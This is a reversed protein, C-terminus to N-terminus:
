LSFVGSPSQRLLAWLHAKAENSYGFAGSSVRGVPRGNQFIPEGGTPDANSRNVDADDMALLVLQEHAPKAICRQSSAQQSIAEGNQM